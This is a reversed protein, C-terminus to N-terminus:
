VKEFVNLVCTDSRMRRLLKATNNKNASGPEQQRARSVYAADIWEFGTALAIDSVDKPIDFNKDDALAGSWKPLFVCLRGMSNLSDYLAEIIQKLLSIYEPYHQTAALLDDFLHKSQGFYPPDIFIWDAKIPLTIRADHQQIWNRKPNIDFLYPCM